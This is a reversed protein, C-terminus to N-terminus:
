LVMLNHKKAIADITGKGCTCCCTNRTGVSGECGNFFATVADSVYELKDTMYGPWNRTVETNSGAATAHAGYHIMNAVPNGDLDRFAIVTMKPDFAGQLHQAFVPVKSGLLNRRNVGVM